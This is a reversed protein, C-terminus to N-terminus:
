EQQQCVTADPNDECYLDRKVCYAGQTGPVRESSIIYDETCVFGEACECTPQGEPARCRCSCFVRDAVQQQDLQDCEERECRTPDGQYRYVLCVRTRCQVSGTEVYAEREDFGGPPINEPTCPDGVGSPACAVAGTAFALVWAAEVARRGLFAVISRFVATM